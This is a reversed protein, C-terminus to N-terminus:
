FEIRSQSSRACKFVDPQATKSETLSHHVVEVRKVPRLPVRERAMRMAQCSHLLLFAVIKLFLDERIERTIPPILVSAARHALAPAFCRSDTIGPSYAKTKSTM